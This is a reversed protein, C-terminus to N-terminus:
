GPTAKCRGAATSEPASRGPTRAPTKLGQRLADLRHAEWASLKLPGDKRRPDTLLDLMAGVIRKLPAAPADIRKGGPARLTVIEADDILEIEQAQLWRGDRKLLDALLPVLDLAKGDVEIGLSLM